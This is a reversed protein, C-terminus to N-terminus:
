FRRAPVLLAVTNPGEWAVRGVVRGDAAFGVIVRPDAEPGAAADCTKHFIAAYITPGGFRRTCRNSWTGQAVEQSIANVVVAPVTTRPSLEPISDTANIGLASGVRQGPIMFGYDLRASADSGGSGAAGGSACGALMLGLGLLRAVSAIVIPAMLPRPM